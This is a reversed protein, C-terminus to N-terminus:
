AQRPVKLASADYENDLLHLMVAPPLYFVKVL